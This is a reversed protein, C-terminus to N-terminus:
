FYDSGDPKGKEDIVENDFSPICWTKQRKEAKDYVFIGEGDKNM